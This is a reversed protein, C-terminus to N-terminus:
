KGDGVQWTRAGVPQAKSDHGREASLDKIEVRDQDSKARLREITKKQEAITKISDTQTMRKDAAKIRSQEKLSPSTQKGDGNSSRRKDRRKKNDSSDNSSITTIDTSSKRKPAKAPPTKSKPPEQESESDLSSEEDESSEEIEIETEHVDQDNKRRGQAKKTRFRAELEAEERTKKGLMIDLADLDITEDPLVVTNTATQKGPRTRRTRTM